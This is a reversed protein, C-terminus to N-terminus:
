SAPFGPTARFCRVRRRSAASADTRIRPLRPNLVLTISSAPRSRDQAAVLFREGDPTIDLGQVELTPGAPSIVLWAIAVLVFLRIRFRRRIM